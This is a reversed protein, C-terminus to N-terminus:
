KLLLRLVAPGQLESTGSTKSQAKQVARIVTQTLQLSVAGTNSQAASVAESFKRELISISEKIASIQIKLADVEKSDAQSEILSRMKAQFTFMQDRERIYSSINAKKWSPSRTTIPISPSLFTRLFRQERSLSLKKEELNDNRAENIFIIEERKLEKFLKNSDEPKNQQMILQAYDPNRREYEM